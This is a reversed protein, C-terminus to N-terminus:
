RGPQSHRHQDDTRDGRRGAGSESPVEAPKGALPNRICWAWHEIEETYGRSPPVPNWRWSQRDRRCHQRKREHRARGGDKGKVVGVKTTTDADKFLMVEKEQLLILTGKTGMVMEGYGGFGNGNISSYTVVIKKNPDKVQTKQEDDYYGPKPFEFMCYVHDECDRDASFTDAASPRCLSRCRKKTFRNGAIAGIFISSADLQHSGLEAMLGGGTREWLRWRILEELPSILDGNQM